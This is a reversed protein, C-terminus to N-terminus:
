TLRDENLRRTKLDEFVRALEHMVEQRKANPISQYLAFVIVGYSEATFEDPRSWEIGKGRDVHRLLTEVHRDFMESEIRPNLGEALDIQLYEYTMRIRALESLPLGEFDQPDFAEFYLQTM